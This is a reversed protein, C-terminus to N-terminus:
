ATDWVVGIKLPFEVITGAEPLRTRVVVPTVVNKQIKYLDFTLCARHRQRDWIYCYGSPDQGITFRVGRGGLNALEAKVHETVQSHYDDQTHPRPPPNFLLGGTRKVGIAAAAAKRVTVHDQNVLGMPPEIQVYMSANYADKRGGKVGKMLSGTKTGPTRKKVTKAKTKRQTKRATKKKTTPM